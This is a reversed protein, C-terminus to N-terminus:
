LIVPLCHPLHVFFVKVFVLGYALWCLFFPLLFSSSTFCNLAGLTVVFAVFGPCSALLPCSVSIPRTLFPLPSLIRYLPVSSPLAPLFLFFLTVYIWITM